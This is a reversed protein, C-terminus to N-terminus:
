KGVGHYENYEKTGLCYRKKYERVIQDAVLVFDTSCSRPSMFCAIVTEKWLKKCEDDYFSLVRM